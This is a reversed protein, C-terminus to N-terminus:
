VGTEAKRLSQEWDQVQSEGAVKLLWFGEPSAM